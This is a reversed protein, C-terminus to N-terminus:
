WESGATEGTYEYVYFFDLGYAPCVMLKDPMNNNDKAGLEGCIFYTDPIHPAMIHIYSKYIRRLAKLEGEFAEVELSM